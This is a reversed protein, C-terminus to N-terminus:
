GCAKMWLSSKDGSGPSDMEHTAVVMTEELALDKMVSLVEKVM